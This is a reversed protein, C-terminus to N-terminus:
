KELERILKSLKLKLGKALKSLTSLTPNTIKGREIMCINVRHLGSSKSLQGQSLGKRERVKSLNQLNM